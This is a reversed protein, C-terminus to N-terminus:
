SILTAAPLLGFGRAQAAERLEKDWCAFELTEGGAAFSLATALHVADYARLAHDGASKAARALLENNVAHVYLGRWLSELDDLGQRLQKPTLRGGKRM